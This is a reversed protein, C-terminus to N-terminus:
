KESTSLEGKVVFFWHSFYKQEETASTFHLDFAYFLFRALVVRIPKSTYVSAFANANQLKCENRIAQNGGNPTANRNSKM